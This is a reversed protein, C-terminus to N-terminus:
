GKNPGEAGGPFRVDVANRFVKLIDKKTASYPVNKLFLCRGDKAALFLVTRLDSWWDLDFRRPSQLTKCELFIMVGYIWICILKIFKVTFQRKKNLCLFVAEASTYLINNKWWMFILNMHFFVIINLQTVKKIRRLKSRWRTWVKSRQKTLRWQSILYWREM